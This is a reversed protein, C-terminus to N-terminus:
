GSVPASNLLGVTSHRYRPLLLGKTLTFRPYLIGPTYYAQLITHRSYLKGPTYNAQLITQRSYLIGPTSYVQLLIGPASYRYRSNLINQSSYVQPFTFM